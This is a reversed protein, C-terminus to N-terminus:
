MNKKELLLRCVLHGRSQLESTHEESRLDPWREVEPGPTAQAIAQSIALTADGQTQVLPLSGSASKRVSLFFLPGPQPAHPHKRKPHNKEASSDRSTSAM